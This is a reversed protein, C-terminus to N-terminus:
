SDVSHLDTARHHITYDTRFHELIHQCFTRVTKSSTEPRVNLFIDEDVVTIQFSELLNKDYVLFDGHSWESHDYRTKSFVDEVLSEVLTEDPEINSNGGDTEIVNNQSTLQITTFGDITLGSEDSNIRPEFPVSFNNEDAEEMGGVVQDITESGLSESGRLIRPINIRGDRSVTGKVVSTPSNHQKFEVRTPRAGFQKEVDVIDQKTAGHFQISIRRDDEYSLRKATFGSVNTETILELGDVISEIDDASVYILDLTPLYDIVREITRKTWYRREITYIRLSEGERVLIFQDTRDYSPTRIEFYSTSENLSIEKFGRNHLFELTKKHLDTRLGLDHLQQELTGLRFGNSKALFVKLDTTTRKEREAEEGIEEETKVVHEILTQLIEDTSLGQLSHPDLDM